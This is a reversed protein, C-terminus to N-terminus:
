HVGLVQICTAEVRAPVSSYSNHCYRGEGEEGHVIVIYVRWEGPNMKCFVLQVPPCEAYMHM